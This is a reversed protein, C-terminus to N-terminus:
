EEHHYEEKYLLLAKQKARLLRSRVTSKKIGLAKALEADGWALLYKAKLVFQDKEPLKLLVKGLQIASLNKITEEEIDFNDALREEFGETFDSFNDSRDHQNKRIQDIALHNVMTVIYSPLANRNLERIRSLNQIIRLVTQQVIDELDEQGQFYKRAHKFMLRHYDEYLAQVYDRDSQEYSSM